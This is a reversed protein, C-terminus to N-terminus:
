LVLFLLGCFGSLGFFESFGSFESFGPFGSFCPHNILFQMSILFPILYLQNRLNEVAPINFIATNEYKYSYLMVNSVFISDTLEM